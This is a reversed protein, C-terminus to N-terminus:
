YISGDRIVEPDRPAGKYSPPDHIDDAAQQMRSPSRTPSHVYSPEDSQASRIPISVALPNHRQNNNNTQPINKMKDTIDTYTPPPQTPIPHQTHDDPKHSPPELNIMEVDHPLDDGLRYVTTGYQCNSPSRPPWQAPQVPVGIPLPLDEIVIGNM